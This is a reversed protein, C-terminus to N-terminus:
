SFSLSVFLKMEAAFHLETSPKTLWSSNLHSLAPAIKGASEAVQNSTRATNARTTKSMIIEGKQKAHHFSNIFLILGLKQNSLYLHNAGELYASQQYSELM